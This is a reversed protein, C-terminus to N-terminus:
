RETLKRLTHKAAKWDRHQGDALESLREELVSAHWPPSLEAADDNCLSDWLSEMAALREALPLQTLADLNPM